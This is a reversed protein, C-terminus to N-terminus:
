VANWYVFGNLQSEQKHEKAVQAEVQAEIEQWHQRPVVRM